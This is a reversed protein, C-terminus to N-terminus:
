CTSSKELSTVSPLLIKSRTVHCLSPFICLGSIFLARYVSYNNYSFDFCMVRNQFFLKATRVRPTKWILDIIKDSVVAVTLSLQKDSNRDKEQILGAPMHASIYKYMRCLFKCIDSTKLNDTHCAHCHRHLKMRRQM